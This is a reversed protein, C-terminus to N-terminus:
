QEARRGRLHLTWSSETPMSHPYADATLPVQSQLYICRRNQGYIGRLPRYVTSSAHRLHFRDPCICIRRIGFQLRSKSSLSLIWRGIRLFGRSSSSTPDQRSCLYLFVPTWTLGLLGTLTGLTMASVTDMHVSRIHTSSLVTCNTASDCSKTLSSFSQTGVPPARIPRRVNLSRCTQRRNIIQLFLLFLVINAPYNL